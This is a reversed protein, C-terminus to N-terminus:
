AVLAANGTARVPGVGSNKAQAQNVARSLNASIRSGLDATNNATRENAAANRNLAAVAESLLQAQEQNGREIATRTGRLEALDSMDLPATSSEDGIKPALAPTQVIPAVLLQRQEASEQLRQQLDVVNSPQKVKFREEFSAAPKGTIKNEAEALVNLPKAAGAIREQTERLDQAPTKIAPQKENDSTLWSWGKGIEEGLRAINGFLSFDQEPMSDYDIGQINEGIYRTAKEAAMEGVISVIALGGGKGAGKLLDKPKIKSVVDKITKGITSPKPAKPANDNAVPPLKPQKPVKPAKPAKVPKPTKPAKTKEALDDAYGLARKISQGIGSWVSKFTRAANTATNIKGRVGGVSLKFLNVAGTALKWAKTISWIGALIVGAWGAAGLEGLGEFMAGLFSKGDGRADKFKDIAAGLQNIAAAITELITAAAALTSDTIQKGLNSLQEGLSAIEEGDANVRKKTFVQVLNDFAGGVAEVGSRFKEFSPLQSDVWAVVSSEEFVKWISGMAAKITDYAVNFGDAWTATGAKQKERWTAFRDNFTGLTDSMIGLFNDGVKRASEGLWDLFGGEGSGAFMDSLAGAVQDFTTGAVERFRKLAPFTTELGDLVSDWAKAFVPAALGAAASIDTWADKVSAWAGSFNGTTLKDFAALLDVSAEKFGTGMIGSLAGFEKSVAAVAVGVASLAVGFAGFKLFKLTAGVARLAGNFPLLAAKSAVSAATIGKLSKQLAKAKRSTTPLKAAMAGFVGALSRAGAAVPMLTFNSLMGLPKLAIGLGHSAVSLAMLGPALGALALMAKFAGSAADPTAKLRDTIAAFGDAVSNLFDKVTEGDAGGMTAFLEKFTNAVRDKANIITDLNADYVKGLFGARKKQIAVLRDDLDQLQDVLKAGQSLSEIGFVERMVEANIQGTEKFKQTIGRLLKLPDINGNVAKIAGTFQGELQQRMDDGIDAGNTALDIAMDVRQTVDITDDLLTRRIDARLGEAGEIGASELITKIKGEGISSISQRYNDVDIGIARLQKQLKSTPAMLKAFSAKIATGAEGAFVGADAYGAIIATLTEISVGAMKAIPAGTKLAAFFQDGNMASSGVAAAFLEMTQTMQDTQIGFGGMVDTLRDGLVQVDMKLAVSGEVLTPLNKLIEEPTWGSKVLEIQAQAMEPATFAGDRALKSAQNQLKRIEQTSADAFAAINAFSKELEGAEDIASKIGLAAPFSIGAAMASARAFGDGLNGLNKSIRNLGANMRQAAADLGRLQKQAQAFGNGALKSTLTILGEFQRDAM